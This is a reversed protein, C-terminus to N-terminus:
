VERYILDIYDSNDEILSIIGRELYKFGNQVNMDEYISKDEINISILPFEESEILYLNLDETSYNLTETLYNALTISLTSVACCVLDKGIVDKNAHDKIIIGKFFNNTKILKVEIM